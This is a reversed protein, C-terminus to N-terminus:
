KVFETLSGISDTIVHADIFSLYVEGTYGSAASVRTIRVMYLTSVKKNTGSVNALGLKNHKTYETGDMTFTATYPSGPPVTFNEDVDAYLVDTQFAIVSGSSASPVTFHTHIHLDSEIVLSHPTQIVYEIYNGVDFGLAPYEVGGSIGYNHTRWNPSDVAPYFADMVNMQLDQFEYSPHRSETINNFPTRYNDKRKKIQRNYLFSIPSGLYLYTGGDATLTYDAM